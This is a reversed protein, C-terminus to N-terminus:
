PRPGSAPGDRSPLPGGPHEFLRLAVAERISHVDLKRLISQVHNRVTVPSIRLLRAVRRQDENRALHELVEEERRSLPWLPLRPPSAVASGYAVRRLYTESRHARDVDQACHVLWPRSGDPATLVVTLVLYWRGREPGGIQLLFPALREGRAAGRRLECDAGCGPGGERVGCVLAACARGRLEAASRGLLAEAEPNLEALRGQPDTIWTPSGLSGIWSPLWDLAHPPRM